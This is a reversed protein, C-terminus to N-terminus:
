VVEGWVLFGLARYILSSSDTSDNTLHRVWLDSHKPGLSKEQALGTSV